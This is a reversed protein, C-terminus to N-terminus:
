LQKGLYKCVVNLEKAFLNWIPGWLLHKVIYLNIALDQPDQKPKNFANDESFICNLDAFGSLISSDIVTANITASSALRLDAIYLSYFLGKLM